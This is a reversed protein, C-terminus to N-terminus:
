KLVLRGRFPKSVSIRFSGDKAEVEGCHVVEHAEDSSQYVTPSIGQGRLHRWAPISLLYEDDSSKIWDDETFYKIFPKGIVYQLVVGIIALFTGIVLFGITVLIIGSITIVLLILPTYKGYFSALM